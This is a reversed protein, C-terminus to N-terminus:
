LTGLARPTRDCHGWPRARGLSRGLRQLLRVELPAQSGFTSQRRFTSERCLCGPWTHSHGRPALGLAVWEEAWLLGGTIPFSCAQFEELDGRPWVQALKEMPLRHLLGSKLEGFCTSKTLMTITITIIIKLGKWTVAIPFRQGFGHKTGKLGDRHHLSPVAGEGLAFGGHTGTGAANKHGGAGRGIAAERTSLLGRKEEKRTGHEMRINQTLPPPTKVM